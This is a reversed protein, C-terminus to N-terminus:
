RAGCHLASTSRHSLWTHACELNARHSVCSSRLQQALPRSRVPPFVYAATRAAARRLVLTRSASAHALLTQGLRKNLFMKGQCRILTEGPFSRDTRATLAALVRQAQGARLM